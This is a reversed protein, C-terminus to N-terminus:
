ASSELAKIAHSTSLLGAKRDSALKKELKKAEQVSLLREKLDAFGTKRHCDALTSSLKEFKSVIEWQPLSKLEDMNDLIYKYFATETAYRVVQGFPDMFDAVSMYEPYDRKKKFARTSERFGLVAQNCLNNVIKYVAVADKEQFCAAIVEKLKACKLKNVEIGNLRDQGWSDTSAPKSETEYRGTKRISPLVETYVWDQFAEALPLKSNGVLRYLGPENIYRTKLANYDIPHPPSAKPALGIKM